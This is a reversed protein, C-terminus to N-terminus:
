RVRGGAEKVKREIFLRVPYPLAATPVFVPHPYHSPGLTWVAALRHLVKVADWALRTTWEESELACGAESFTVRLVPQGMAVASLSARRYSSYWSYSVGALAGLGFASPLKLDSSALGVLCLVFALAYGILFGVASELISDRYVRRALDSTYQFEVVYPHALPQPEAM